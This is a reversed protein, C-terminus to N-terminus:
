DNCIDIPEIGEGVIQKWEEISISGKSNICAWYELHELSHDFIRVQNSDTTVMLQPGYGGYSATENFALIPNGILTATEIDWLHWNKQYFAAFYNSSEDIVVPAVYPINYIGSSKTQPMDIIKPQARWETLDWIAVFDRLGAIIYKEDKSFSLSQITGLRDQFSHGPLSDITKRKTNYVLIPYKFNNQATVLKGGNANLVNPYNPVDAINLIKTGISKRWLLKKSWLNWAITNGDESIAVEYKNYPRSTSYLDNTDLLDLKTKELNPSKLDWRLITGSKYFTTLFRNSRDLTIALPMSKEGELLLYNQNQFFLFSSNNKNPIKRLIINGSKEGVVAIGERSKYISVIPIDRTGIGYMAIHPNSQLEKFLGSIASPTKKIKLSSLFYKASNKENLGAKRHGESSLLRALAENKQLETEEKQKKYQYAAVIASITLITIILIAFFAVRKTKRHQRIDEGGIEDKDIDLLTASISAISNRFRKNEIKLTDEENRVWALDVWLPEKNFSKLSSKPIANTSSAFNNEKKNWEIKGDTLVIIINTNGKQTLWYNLEKEVWESNAAEPSAMLLFYKSNDLAKKIVEWLNPNASLNTEDRYLRVARLKYWPKAFKHLESQLKRTINTQRLTHRYSIFGDYKM